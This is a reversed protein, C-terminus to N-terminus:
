LITTVPSPEGTLQAPDFVEGLVQLEVIQPPVLGLTHPHANGAYDWVWYRNLNDKSV